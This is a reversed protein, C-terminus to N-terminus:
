RRVKFKKRKTPAPPLSEVDDITKTLGHVVSEEGAKISKRFDLVKMEVTKDKWLGDAVKEGKVYLSFWTEEGYVKDWSKWLQLTIM